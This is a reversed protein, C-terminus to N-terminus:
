SQTPPVCSEPFYLHFATGKGVESEVQIDGGLVELSRKVIYLGVGNGETDNSFRTFMQFLKGEAEELNIGQGNDSVSLKIAGNEMQSSVRIRPPVGPRSYKLANSILNQLISELSARSFLLLPVAETDIELEAKQEELTQSFNELIQDISERINIEEMEQEMQREVRSIDLLDGITSLLRQSSAELKAIVETIMEESGPGQHLSKLVTIMGQINIVPAKLDHSATYVLGDLAENLALLRRNNAELSESHVELKRRYEREKAVRRENSRTVLYALLGFGFPVLFRRLWQMTTGPFLINELNVEIGRGKLDAITGFVHVILGICVALLTARFIRKNNM